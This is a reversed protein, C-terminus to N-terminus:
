LGLALPGRTLLSGDRGRRLGFHSDPLGFLNLLTTFLDGTTRGEFRLHRGTSLQGALNGALVVPLSRTSHAGGNGFESVSVVLTNDLLSGNGEPVSALADLLKALQTMYVVFGALLDRRAAPENLGSHVMEHWNAYGETPYRRGLFEFRPDHYEAFQLTAVRTLDCAFAMAIIDIMAASSEPLHAERRASYDPSLSLNPPGCERGPEAQQRQLRRELAEVREAHAQLRVRDEPALRRSLDGFSERVAGLVSGRHSRLLEARSPTRGERNGFSNSFLRDFAARPDGEADVPVGRAAWFCQNEGLSDNPVKLDLRSLRTTPQSEAIRQEFSPGAAPGNDVQESGPRVSGDENLSGTFLTCTMLSRGAPNHANGRRQEARVLNDIGSLVLLRESHRALPALIPSLEGLPGVSAPAWQGPVIGQPHMVVVLRKAPGGAGQARATAELWPLGLAVGGAGRLLSRRTLPRM